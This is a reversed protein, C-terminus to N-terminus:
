LNMEVGLCIMFCIAEYHEIDILFLKLGPIESLILFSICLPSRTATSTVFVGKLSAQEFIGRFTKSKKSRIINPHILNSPWKCHFDLKNRIVLIM